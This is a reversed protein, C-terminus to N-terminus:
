LHASCPLYPILLLVEDPDQQQQESMCDFLLDVDAGFCSFGSVASRFGARALVQLGDEADLPRV